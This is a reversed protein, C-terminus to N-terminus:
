RTRNARLTDAPDVIWRRDIPSWRGQDDKTRFVGAIDRDDGEGGVKGDAGLSRLTVNGATDVQFDLPQNWGDITRNTYGKKEPLEELKLPLRNHAHAFELIRRMNFSIAGTTLSAPPISSWKGVILAAVIVLIFVILIVPSTGRLLKMIFRSHDSGDHPHDADLLLHM